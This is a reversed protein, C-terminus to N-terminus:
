CYEKLINELRDFKNEVDGLLKMQCRTRVLNHDDYDTKFYTDGNIYDTLFRTSLELAMLYLGWNLSELEGKGLDERLQPVFGEAFARYLEIDLSVKTLDKEDEFSTNAAFRLADGFDNMVFGPMVTDLDIVALPEETTEDFMINNCKTDNHTVRLAIEGSEFMKNVKDAFKERETLFAIEKKVEGARGAPDAAIAAELQRFRNKTDHFGPITEYLKSADFDLLLKQFRGFGEGTSKLIKKDPLNFNKSDFVYSTVRWYDGNDDVFLSEGNTRHYIKVVKRILDSEGANLLKNYIHKTVLEINHMVENPKKFVHHNIRQVIYSKEKADELLTIVFTDNINGTKIFSYKILRGPLGYLSCINSFEKYMGM